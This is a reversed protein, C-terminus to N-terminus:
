MWAAGSDEMHLCREAMRRQFHSAPVTADSILVEHSKLPLTSYRVAGRLLHLRVLRMRRCYGATETRRM